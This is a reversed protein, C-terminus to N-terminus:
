LSMKIGGLISPWGPPTLCGVGSSREAGKKEESRMQDVRRDAFTKSSVKRARLIAVDFLATRGPGSEVGSQPFIELDSSSM